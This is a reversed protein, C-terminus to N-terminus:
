SLIEENKSEWIVLGYFCELYYFLIIIIKEKKKKILM